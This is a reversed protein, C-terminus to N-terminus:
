NVNKITFEKCHFQICSQIAKLVLQLQIAKSFTQRKHKDFSFIMTMESTLEINIRNDTTMGSNFEIM